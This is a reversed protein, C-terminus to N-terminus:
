RLWNRRVLWYGIVAREREGWARGQLESTLQPRRRLRPVDIAVGLLDAFRVAEARGSWRVVVDPLAEGRTDGRPLLYELGQAAFVGLVIVPGGMGSLLGLGLHATVWGIDATCWFVDEDKIDFIYKM